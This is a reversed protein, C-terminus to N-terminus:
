ALFHQTVILFITDLLVECLCVKRDNKVDQKRQKKEEKTEDRSRIMNRPIEAQTEEAAM